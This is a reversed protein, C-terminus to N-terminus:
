VNKTEPIILTKVNFRSLGRLFKEAATKDLGTMQSFLTRAETINLEGKQYSILVNISDAIQSQM